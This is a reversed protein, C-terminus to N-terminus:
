GLKVVEAQWVSPNNLTQATQGFSAAAIVSQANLLGMGTLNSNMGYQYALDGGIADTDSGAQLHATLRADTLQWNTANAANTVVDMDFESVLSAFNFSEIKNNRLEDTSGLSFGQMAEAIVQLNVISNNASSAYWNSLTIQDSSDMSLILDNGSKSLSLDSYAFNGGLSIINDAGTSAAILDLGDGKNFSIVDYGTGTTITDNGEGGILQENGDGANIVDAGAGSDYLNNGVSENLTDNGANGLLVDNGEGGSLSDDGAGGDILDDQNGGTLYDNGDLGFMRNSSNSLGTMNDADVTGNTIVRAIVDAQTWTVGDSFQFQEVGYGYNDHYTSLQYTITLQDGIGSQIVLDTGNRLLATIDTSKFGLQVVDVTATDIAPDGTYGTDTVTDIGDGSAIVFTDSGNGGDMNDNGAGGDIMDDQNGGYLNDNGDLGYIRNTANTLGALYDDGTTGNSIVRATIDAQSWTVGDSFQIQEVGDSYREHYYGIQSAITLQDGVGSQIVLDNGVRLLATIDTSKFGLQLIDTAAAGTGTGAYILDVGDSDYILDTGDGGVFIYTDNGAGGHLTDNDTGSILTDAGAGGFLTDNGSGGILSDNGESGNLSDNGTGGDIIDAQDGGTLYDNGDLGNIRNTGNNYGTIQDDGATGNTIVRAKIDAYTWTVGDSFQIQEVGDSYREHYYGIQSAITLQDGVGSQIVLDNGVRLLATIDTSKFGLQLIDTAAAGTGAYLLDIGDGDNILDMGDDSNFIYTDNGADGQLADNDTGGILTDDGAGGFLTDNGSGGILTTDDDTNNGFLYDDGALGLLIRDGTGGYLWDDAEDGYLVDDTGMGIGSSWLVEKTMAAHLKLAETIAPTQTIELLGAMDQWGTWGTGKLLQQTAFNFDILELLGAEADTSIQQNFTTTLQTFDLRIGTNDIVLNIQDLLPKFRTQLLLSEYVSAKLEDYSHQLLDLKGQEYHIEIPMATQITNSYPDAAVTSIGSRAGENPQTPLGFFYDGNFAELIHIKQNWSNILAQYQPTLETTGITGGGGSGGSSTTSFVETLYTANTISGFSKYSVVYPLEIGLETQLMLGAVRVDYSEAMGSTDAWADLLQDLQALQADRTTTASYQTLLNQLTVSQTAAERLDRVVGSGGMDPLHQVTSTDLANLYTRNFTDAALNVDGMHGTTETGTNSDTITYSGTDALQNGNSLMQLNSTKTTNLSTINLSALTYLEDTQSTGDQNLDRWIRLNTFQTDQNNVVGDANSDIDALADFGDRAKQGARTGTTLITNDGFLERGNDITGNSNRDLVLMGDDSAVWGTGNKTGDGTHDFQIANSTAIGITELGDGDLDFSLPDLPRPQWSKARDFYTKVNDRIKEYINRPDLIDGENESGPAHNEGPDDSTPLPLEARRLAEDVTTNSNQTVPRYPFDESGIKGIADTVKLWDSLLDDGTKIIERPNSNTPDYDPFGSGPIDPDRPEYAGIDTTITGFPSWWTGVGPTQATVLGVVNGGIFPDQSPGGRAGWERGSSDTYVLYKHYYTSGDTPYTGIPKYRVEISEM